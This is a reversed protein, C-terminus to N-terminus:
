SENKSKQLLVPEIPTKKGPQADSKLNAQRPAKVLQKKAHTTGQSQPAVNHRRFPISERINM